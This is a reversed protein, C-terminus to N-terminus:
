SNGPFSIQHFFSPNDPDQYISFVEEPLAQYYAHILGIFKSIKVLSVQNANGFNITGPILDIPVFDDNNIEVASECFLPISADVCNEIEVSNIEKQIDFNNITEIEFAPVGVSENFSTRFLDFTWHISDTDFIILFKGDDQIEPRSACLQISTGSILAGFVRLNKVLARFNDSRITKIAGILQLLVGGMQVALKKLDKHMEPPHPIEHVNKVKYLRLDAAMEVMLLPLGSCGALFVQDTFFSKSIAAVHGTNFQGFCQVQRSNAENLSM